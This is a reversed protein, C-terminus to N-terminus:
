LNNQTVTDDVRIHTTLTHRARVTPLPHVCLDGDSRRTKGQKVEGLPIGVAETYATAVSSTHALRRVRSLGGCNAVLKTLCHVIVCEIYM